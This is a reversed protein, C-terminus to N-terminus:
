RVRVFRVIRADARGNTVRVFYVGAATARGRDDTGDWTLRHTGATFAGDALRAVRRGALDYVAAHVQGADPLLLAFDVRGRVPNPGLVDLAFRLPGAGAHVSVPVVAPHIRAAEVWVAPVDAFAMEIRNVRVELHLAPGAEPVVEFSDAAFPGGGLAFGVPAPWGGLFGDGTVRVREPLADVTADGPLPGEFVPAGALWLRLHAGGAFPGESAALAHVMTLPDMPMSLRGITLPVGGSNGSAFLDMGTGPTGPPLGDRRIRFSADTADEFDFAIGDDGSDDCDRVQFRDLVGDDDSDHDDFVVAARGRGEIWPAAAYDPNV